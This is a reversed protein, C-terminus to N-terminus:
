SLLSRLIDEWHDLFLWHGEGPLFTARCDPLTSAVHRAASLSVNADAEGHWVDIPISIDELRFGWPSSLIVAERAFGRVGARTAERFNEMLMSQIEPRSMIERDVASNGSAMRRFFREPHRNPNGMLWLTARLLWPARQAVAVGARRIRPMEEVVGALDTPGLGALIAARTVREPIKFACAAAYPGGASNGAVAFREIGLADAFAAVDEPWDLLKRGKQFDSLGFGPRELVIVRAGLSLSPGEPPHLLRSSPAGPFFFIPRGTPDGYEAYGLARGDPLRATQDRKASSDSM